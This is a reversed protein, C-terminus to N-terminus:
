VCMIHHIQGISYPLQVFRSVKLDSDFIIIGCDISINNSIGLVKSHNRNKSQGIFYYGQDYSLGRTFAPFTGQVSLNNFRLHGPLSDLVHISGEFFSVNHPMSLNKTLDDLRKGTELDIEAICGDFCDNKWNGTSSFMTVYCSNDIVHVDNCHHATKGSSNLKSSLDFKRTQFFEHNFELVADLNTCAIYYTNRKESYSIGHARAGSPLESIKQTRNNKYEFVGKNTDIFIFRDNVKTMGYCAGKHIKNISINTGKIDCKYLGGGSLEDPSEAGGCTFFLTQKLQELKNIMLLDNLIPSIVFDTNAEFGFNILQESIETVGSSCIIIFHDKTLNNPNTVNFGEYTKGQEVAANDVIFAIKSRDLKQITKSAVNGSGFIVIPKRLAKSINQFTTRELM